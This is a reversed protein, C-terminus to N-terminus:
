KMEGRLFTMRSLCDAAAEYPDCSRTAISSLLDDSLVEAAAAEAMETLERKIMDIVEIRAQEIRKSLGAGSRKLFALHMELDEVLLDIGDGREASVLSVTPTRDSPPRLGLMARVDSAIREAGDRDAKNVAYLDAIEMIGAKMIQVDDGMGPVLVLLVTDCANVVDIESQGVGVTEIIIRDYGCADLAIAAERASASLGGLSGRSGMSRIFVSDDPDTTLMRLRDGLIAGGTFPSSPDIAIVGVKLGRERFKSILRGTLTSKGSGPSGTLGIVHARGSRRYLERSIEAASRDRREIMTIIRAIARVDGCLARECLSALSRQM